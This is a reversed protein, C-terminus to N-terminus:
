CWPLDDQRETGKQSFSTLDQRFCVANGQRLSSGVEVM